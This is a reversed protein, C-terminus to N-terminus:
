AKTLRSSIVSALTRGDRVKAWFASSIANTLANCNAFSLINFIKVSELYPNWTSFAWTTMQFSLPINVITFEWMFCLNWEPEKLLLSAGSTPLLSGSYLGDSLHIKQSGLFCCLQDFQLVPAWSCSASCTIARTITGRFERAKELIRWLFFFISLFPAILFFACAPMFLFFAWCYFNM